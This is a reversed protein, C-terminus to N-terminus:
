NIFSCVQLQTELPIPLISYVATPSAVLLKGDYNGIAIGNSYHLTQKAQQDLISFVFYPVILDVQVFM